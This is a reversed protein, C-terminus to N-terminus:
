RSGARTTPLVVDLIRDILDDGLPLGHLAHHWILAPGCEAILSIDSGAPLAGRAVAETILRHVLQIVSADEGSAGFNIPQNNTLDYLPGAPATQPPPAVVEVDEDDEIPAVAGNGIEFVMAPLYVSPAM